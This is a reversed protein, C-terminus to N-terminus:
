FQEKFVDFSELTANFKEVDMKAEIESLKVLKEKIKSDWVVLQKSFMEDLSEVYAEQLESFKKEAFKSFEQKEDEFRKGLLNFKADLKKSAEEFKFDFKKDLEVLKSNVVSETEKIKDM